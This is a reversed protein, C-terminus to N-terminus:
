PKPNQISRIIDNQSVLDAIIRLTEQAEKENVKQIAFGAHIIVYDGVHVDDVLMLNAEKKAGAVDVKAVTKTIEIIKGPIGLCMNKNGKYNNRSLSPWEGVKRKKIIGIILFFNAYKIFIKASKGKQERGHWLQRDWLFEATM